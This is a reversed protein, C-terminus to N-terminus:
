LVRIGGEWLFLTRHFTQRRLHIELYFSGVVGRPVPILLVIQAVTVMM